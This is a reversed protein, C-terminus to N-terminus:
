RTDNDRSRNARSRFRTERSDLSVAHGGAQDDERNASRLTSHHGDIGYGGGPGDLGLSM